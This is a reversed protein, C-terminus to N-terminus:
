APTAVFMMRTQNHGINNPARKAVFGHKKFLEIMEAENYRTLGLEARLKRYDSFFTTVLGGIAAFFFGGAAAFKLLAIIDDTAKAGPSIIDAVVFRGGDRLKSKARDLLAEFDAREIYQLVSNVVILDLSQDEVEDIGGAELVTIRANRSFRLRLNARVKPASDYLYLRACTAAVLAAGSAEGCGFDLVVSTPDNVLSAVGQAIGDDHLMRHRDNVYISNEQNWFDRWNM